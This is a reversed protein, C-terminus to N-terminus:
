LGLKNIAEQQREPFLHQYRTRMAETQHGMFRDIVRQDVGQAALNSAFSHRLAHFRIGEFRTGDTLSKLLYYHHERNPPAGNADAFVWVGRTHKRHHQLIAALHDHMPIYRPSERASTSGKFGRALLRKRDLQVDSWKLRLVESFRMGTYAATALLAHLDTGSVVELLETIEDPTLYRFRRMEAIAEEPHDGTALLQEIEEGTRFREFTAEEKLWNVKSLPNEALHGSRVAANLMTRFTSLEKNITVNKVGARHRWRKYAEFFDPTLEELASVNRNGIFERLHDLHIRETDHTSAAKTPPAAQELYSNMLALVGVRGAVADPESKNDFIFESVSVGSPVQLLAAKLQEVKGDIITQAQKAARLDSAGTSRKYRHGRYSFSVYYKGSENNLFPEAM